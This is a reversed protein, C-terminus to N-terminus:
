AFYKGAFVTQVIDDRKIGRQALEEDSMANLARMAQLRSDQEALTVLFNGFAVFPKLFVSFAPASQTAAATAM